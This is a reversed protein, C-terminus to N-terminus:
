RRTNKWTIASWSLRGTPSKRRRIQKERRENHRPWPTCCSPIRISFAKLRAALDEILNWAQHQVLVDAFRSALEQDAAVISTMKQLLDLARDRRQFNQELVNAMRSVLDMMNQRQADTTPPILSALENDVLKDIEAAAPQPDNRFHIYARLWQAGPGNNKALSDEITKQRAPWPRAAAAPQGIVLLASYKSVLPSREFRMLRCLTALGADHPLFVLQRLAKMRTAEDALEYKDLIKRIQPSDSDHIWQSRIQQVLYKARSSIEIDTDSEAATLADFAEPGIRSLENQASQRVLYNKDGLQGILAAIHEALQEPTVDSPHDANAAGATSPTDIAGWAAASTLIVALAIWLLGYTFPRALTMHRGTPHLVIAFDPTQFM